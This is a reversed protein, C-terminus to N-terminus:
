PELDPVKINKAWLDAQRPYWGRWVKVEAVCQNFASANVIDNAALDSLVLGSDADISGGPGPPVVAVNAGAADRVRVYGDPIICGRDAKSTVYSPVKQQLQVTLTAIRAKSAALDNAVDASIERGGKEVKAVKRGAEAIRAAEAAKEALVGHERGVMYGGAGIGVGIALALAAGGLWRALPSLPAILGDTM